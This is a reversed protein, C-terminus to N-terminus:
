YRLKQNLDSVAEFEEETLTEQQKSWREKIIEVIPRKQEMSLHGLELYLQYVESQKWARIAQIKQSFSEEELIQIKELIREVAQAPNSALRRFDALTLSQIEEVPGLSRPKFKVDEIKPRQTYTASPKKFQVSPKVAPEITIPGVTKAREPRVVPVRAVPPMPSVAKKSEFVLTPPGFTEDGLIKEAEAQLDAFPEQSVEQRLRGNLRQFEKDVIALIRDTTQNDLGMGGVAPSSLLMEKTELRDRVDKFRALIINKFRKEQEPDTLNLQSQKLINEVEKDLDLPARTAEEKVLVPSESVVQQNTEVSGGKKLVKIQGAEDKFLIEDNGFLDEIVQGNNQNQDEALLRFCIFNINKANDVVM